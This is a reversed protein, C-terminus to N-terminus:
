TPVSVPRSHFVVSRPAFQVSNVSLPRGVRQILAALTQSVLFPPRLQRSMLPFSGFAGTSISVYSWTLRWNYAAV